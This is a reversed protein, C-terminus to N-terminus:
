ARCPRRGLQDAEGDLVADAREDHHAVVLASQAAEGVMVPSTRSWTASARSPEPTRSRPRTRPEEARAFRRGPMRNRRGGRGLEGLARDLRTVRRVGAVRRAVQAAARGAEDESRPGDGLHPSRDRHGALVALQREADQAGPVADGAAGEVSPPRTM